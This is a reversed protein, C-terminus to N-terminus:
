FVFCENSGVRRYMNPLLHSILPNHCETKAELFHNWKLGQCKPGWLCWHLEQFRDMLKPSSATRHSKTPHCAPIGSGPKGLRTILFLFLELSVGRRGPLLLKSRWDSEVWNRFFLIILVPPKPSLCKQLALAKGSPSAKLFVSLHGCLPGQRGAWPCSSSWCVTSFVCLTVSLLLRHFVAGSTTARVPVCTSLSRLGMFHLVTM